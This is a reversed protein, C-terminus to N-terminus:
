LSRKTSFKLTTSKLLLIPHSKEMANLDKYVSVNYLSCNPWQLGNYVTWIYEVNVQDNYVKWFLNFISKTM